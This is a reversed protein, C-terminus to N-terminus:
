IWKQIDMVVTLFLKTNMNEMKMVSAIRGLNDRFSAMTLNTTTSSSQGSFESNMLSSSADIRTISSLMPTINGPDIYALHKSYIESVSLDSPNKTAGDLENFSISQGLASATFVLLFGLTISLHTKTFNKM